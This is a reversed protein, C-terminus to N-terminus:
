RYTNFYQLGTDFGCIVLLVISVLFIASIIYESYIKFLTLGKGELYCAPFLRAFILFILIGCVILYGTFILIPNPKRKLFLFSLLISISEIYRATIWLQTALNSNYGKFINMGKYSLTHLLDLSAIFFFAIGLFLLFKSINYDKSNWVIIFLGYAIIISFIEIISHYFLYNYLSSHYLFICLLLFVLLIVIVKKINFLQNDQEEGM